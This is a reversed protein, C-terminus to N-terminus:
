QFSCWDLVSSDALWVLQENDVGVLYPHASAISSFDVATADLVSGSKQLLEIRTGHDSPTRGTVATVRVVRNSDTVSFRTEVARQGDSLRVQAVQWRGKVVGDYSLEMWTQPRDFYVAITDHSIALSPSYIPSHKSAPFTSRPIALGLLKGNANYHRLMDYEELENLAPDVQRLLVWFTGDDAFAVRM